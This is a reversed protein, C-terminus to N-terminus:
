EYTRGFTMHMKWDCKFGFEKRIQILLPCHIDVLFFKGPADGKNNTGIKFNDFNDYEFEIKEGQYKGWLHIKDDFPKEGRIISVHPSWSQPKLNYNIMNFPNVVERNLWWRYYKVIEEGGDVNMVAWWSTRKKMTGRYPDYQITGVGVNM